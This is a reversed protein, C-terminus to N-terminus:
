SIVGSGDVLSDLAGAGKVGSIASRIALILSSVANSARSRSFLSTVHSAM